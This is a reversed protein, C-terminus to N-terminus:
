RRFLPLHVWDRRESTKYNFDQKHSSGLPERPPLHPYHLTRPRHPRAPLRWFGPKEGLLIADKPRYLFFFFKSASFFLLVFNETNLISLSSFFYNWNFLKKKEYFQLTIKRELFFFFHCASLKYNQGLFIYKKTSTMRCKSNLNPTKSQSLPTDRVRVKPM